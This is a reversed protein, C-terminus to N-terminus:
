YNTPVVTICNKYNLAGGGGGGKAFPYACPDTSTLGGAGGGGVAVISVRTVGAPAVWTYTGATTYADQGPPAGFSRQNQFAAQLAGSM